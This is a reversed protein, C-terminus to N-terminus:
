GDWYLGGNDNNNWEYIWIDIITDISETEIFCVVGINAPFLFSTRQINKNISREEQEFDFYDIGAVDPLEEKKVGPAVVVRGDWPPVEVAQMGFWLYLFIDM